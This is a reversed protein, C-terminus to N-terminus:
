VSTTAAGKVEKLSLRSSAKACFARSPTAAASSTWCCQGIRYADATEIHLVQQPKLLTGFGYYALPLSVPAGSVLILHRQLNIAAKSQMASKGRRSM